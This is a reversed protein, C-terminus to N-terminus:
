KTRAAVGRNECQIAPPQEDKGDYKEESVEAVMFNLSATTLDQKRQALPQQSIGLAAASSSQCVTYAFCCLQNNCILFLFFFAFAAEVWFQNSAASRRKGNCIDPHHPTSRPPPAVWNWKGDWGCVRGIESAAV